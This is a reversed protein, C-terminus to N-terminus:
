VKGIEFDLMPECSVSTNFGVRFAYQLAKVRELYSPAGPEWLKLVEDNASGITFRFLIQDKYDAFADCMRVVCEYHPKSMILLENGACLLKELYSICTDAVAPTIDHTTPFMIHGGTKTTKRLAAPQLEMAKWSDATKRGFRIAMAKAYCYTCDNACGVYINRSHAAWERTGTARPM